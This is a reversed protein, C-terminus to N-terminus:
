FLKCEYSKININLSKHAFQDKIHLTEKVFLRTKSSDLKAAQSSMSSILSFQVPNITEPFTYFEFAPVKMRYVSVQLCIHVKESLVENM